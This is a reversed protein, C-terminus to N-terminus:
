ARIGDCVSAECSELLLAFASNESMASMSIRSKCSQPMAACTGFSQQINWTGDPLDVCLEMPLPASFAHCVLLAARKGHDLNGVRLVAQMGVPHHRNNGADGFKQTYGHAILPKCAEYFRMGEVVMQWQGDSLATIDGSLCMRGLFSSCLRYAIEQLSLGKSMVAWIQSQAPLILNHLDAAIAPIERCEHADSFSSMATCAMMSPELRHGGSACNEIVLDPLAHRLAMFFTRVAKMQQRLAEGPSEAGDVHTGINGNYDVKLYGIENERLFRILKEYLYATVRDDRFDWFSRGDGTIVVHDASRVHMGDYAPEYVAAGQTTVEFEFWIGLSFGMKRLTKSLPLMGGPFKGTDCVWDGNGGQGLHAQNTKSWGADIVIYRVSTGLLREAVKKTFAATPSGWTACWDNYVIPLDREITPQQELFPHFMETINQCARALSDPCVTLYATPATFAEDPQIQKSWNGFERDAIGGSLSYCDCDHSLEMQWSANHALQAAWILGHVRDEVAGFPFHRGVPYSGLSGYRESEPMAPFWTCELNLSEISDTRLKGEKSWGGYFRHLLLAGPIDDLGMPSLGDLSFSTLLDLLIPVDSTNQFVTQVRIGPMGKTWQVIHLVTYGYEAALRTEIQLTDNEERSNQDVFRLAATAVGHKLTNGAGNSQPLHRLSVHCLSGAHWGDVAIGASVLEPTQLTLRREPYRAAVDSPLLTMFVHGTDEDLWYDLRIDDLIYSTKKLQM